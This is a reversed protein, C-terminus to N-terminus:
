ADTSTTAGATTAAGSATRRRVDGRRHRPPYRSAPLRQPPGRARGSDSRVVLISQDGITYEVFDGAGAVQEERCAIQWVRPWLRELELDLFAQSVYREKPVFGDNGVLMSTLDAVM